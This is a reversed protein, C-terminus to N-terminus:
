KGYECQKTMALSRLSRPLREGLSQKTAESRAIVFLPLEELSM